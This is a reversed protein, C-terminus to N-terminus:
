PICTCLPISTTFLSISLFTSYEGRARQLRAPVFCYPCRVRPGALMSTNITRPTVCLCCREKRRLHLHSNGLSRAGTAGAAARAACEQHARPLQRPFPHHQVTTIRTVTKPKRHPALPLPPRRAVRVETAATRPVTVLHPLQEATTKKMEVLNNTKGLPRVSSSTM